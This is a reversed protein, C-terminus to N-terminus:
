IRVVHLVLFDDPTNGKETDAEQSIVRLYPNLTTYCKSRRTGSPKHHKVHSKLM